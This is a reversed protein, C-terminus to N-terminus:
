FYPKFINYHFYSGKMWTYLLITPVQIDRPKSKDSEVLYFVIDSFSNVKFHFLAMKMIVEPCEKLGKIVNARKNSANAFTSSISAENFKPDINYKEEDVAVILVVPKNDQKLYPLVALYKKEKFM